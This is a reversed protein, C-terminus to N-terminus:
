AAAFCQEEIYKVLEDVTMSNKEMLAIPFEIKFEESLDFYINVAELYYLLHNNGAKQIRYSALNEIFRNFQFGEYVSDRHIHLNDAVIDRVKVYIKNAEQRDGFARTSSESMTKECGQIFQNIAAIYDIPYLTSIPV